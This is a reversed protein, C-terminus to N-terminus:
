PTHVRSNQGTELIEVMVGEDTHFCFIRGQQGDPTNVPMIDTYPQWGQEPLQRYLGDIDDVCICVSLTGPGAPGTDPPGPPEPALIAVLELGTGTHPHELYALEVEAGPLGLITGLMEQRVRPLHWSLECGLLDRFLHVSRDMNQVIIAVHHLSM